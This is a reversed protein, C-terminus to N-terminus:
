WQQTVFHVIPVLVLLANLILLLAVFCLLKKSSKKAEDLVKSTFSIERDLHLGMECDHKFNIVQALHVIPQNATM